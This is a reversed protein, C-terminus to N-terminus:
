SILRLLPDAKTDQVMHFGMFEWPATSTWAIRIVQASPQYFDVVKFIPRRRTWFVDGAASLAAAGLFSPQDSDLYPTITSYHQRESTNLNEPVVRWDRYFISYVPTVGSERLMVILKLGTRVFMANEPNMWATEVIYDRAAPTYCANQVDLVWVGYSTAEPITGYGSKAIGRAQGAALMKGESDQTVCVAAVSVMDTRRRWYKGDFILCLDNTLSGGTPVWCRYENFQQSVAACAQKLRGRNLSNITLSIRQSVLQPAQGETYQYFGNTGLWVVSGDPMTAISSQAACGVSAHLTRVIFRAGDDSTTVLFTRTETFLLLGSNVAYVGTIAAGSPDPYYKQGPEFTGWRGPMSAVVAGEDGVIGTGWFRGFALAGMTIQPTPVVDQARLILRSDQTNQPLYTTVNDPITYGALAGGQSHSPLEFLDTTGSNRLDRTQYVLRAVTGRPGPAIGAWAIQKRVQAPGARVQTSGSSDYTRSYQFDLIVEESRPSLPSLNGWRDVWQTAAQYAGEELLGLITSSGDVSRATGIRGLGFHPHMASDLGYQADHSYGKDNAEPTTSSVTTADDTPNTGSSSPGLGTPPQPAHDFGLPAIFDGDFFYPRGNRPMIIVGNPTGVFQTPRMPKADSTITDTFLWMSTSTEATEGTLVPEWWGNTGDFQYITGGSHCLYVDRDRSQIRCHFVGHMREYDGYGIYPATAAPAGPEVVIPDHASGGLLFPFPGMVGRLTGEETLVMNEIRYGEDPAALLETTEGRVVTFDSLERM